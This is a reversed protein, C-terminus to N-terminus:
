CGAKASASAAADTAQKTLDAATTPASTTITSWSSLAKTAAARATNIDTDTPVETTTSYDPAANQASLMAEQAADLNDLDTQLSTAAYTSLDGSVTQGQYDLDSADYAATSAAYCNDSDGPETTKAAKSVAASEQQVKKLAARQQGLDTNVTTIADNVAKTDDALPAITDALQKAATDM